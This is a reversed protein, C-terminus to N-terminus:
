AVYGLKVLAKRQIEALTAMEQIREDTIPTGGFDTFSLLQATAATPAAALVIACECQAVLLEQSDPDSIVVDNVVAFTCCIPLRKLALPKSLTNNGSGDPLPVEPLNSKHLAQSVASVAADYLGGDAELVVVDIRLVWCVEGEVIVLQKLDLCSLFTSNVFDSIRRRTVDEPSAGCIAPFTVTTSIRGETPKEPDVPAFECTVGCAVRVSTGISVMSTGILAKSSSLSAASRVWSHERFHVLQRNGDSREGEAIRRLIHQAASRAEIALM